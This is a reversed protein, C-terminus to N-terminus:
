WPEVSNYYSKVFGRIVIAVIEKTKRDLIVASEDQEVTYQLKTENLLHYKDSYACTRDYLKPPPPLTEYPRELIHHDFPPYIDSKLLRDLEVVKLYSPYSRDLEKNIIGTREAFNHRSRQATKIKMQRERLLQM